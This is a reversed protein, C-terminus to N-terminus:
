GRLQEFGLPLLSVMSFLRLSVSSAGGAAAAAARRCGSSDWCCCCCCCCCCSLSAYSPRVHETQNILRVSSWGSDVVNLAEVCVARLLHHWRSEMEKLPPILSPSPRLLVRRHQQQQQQQQHQQQQKNSNKERQIVENLSLHLLPNEETEEGLGPPPGRPEPAEWTILPISM